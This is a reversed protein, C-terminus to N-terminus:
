LFLWSTRTFPSVMMLLDATAQSFFQSKKRVKQCLATRLSISIPPRISGFFTLTRDEPMPM